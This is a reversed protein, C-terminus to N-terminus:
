SNIHIGLKTLLFRGVLLPHKVFLKFLVWYNVGEIKKRIIGDGPDRLADQIWDSYPPPMLAPLADIPFYLAELTEASKKPSGKIIKLEFFHTYRTMKNVPLYEAIKRVLATKCGTEEDAERVAAAEPSELPEIGGGPLVWVPIDRRRTLLIKTKEPNFIIVAVSEDKTM